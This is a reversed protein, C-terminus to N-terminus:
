ICFNCSNKLLLNNLFNKKYMEDIEIFISKLLLIMSYDDNSILAKKVSFGKIHLRAQLVCCHIEEFQIFHLRKREISYKQLTNRSRITSLFFGKRFIQYLILRLVCNESPIRLPRNIKNIM